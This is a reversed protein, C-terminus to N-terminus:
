DKTEPEQLEKECACFALEMEKTQERIEPPDLMVSLETDCLASKATICLFCETHDRTKLISEELKILEDQMLEIQAILESSSLDESGDTSNRILNDEYDFTLESVESEERTNGEPTSEEM